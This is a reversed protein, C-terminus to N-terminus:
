TKLERKVEDLFRWDTGDTIIKQPSSKIMGAEHLRLAYFRITDEPDYERWKDYPVENLTELAYDYRATFGGDVMRQAVRKPESVCLDTARLIARLVRKTAIPHKHIYDANGALMCCFYQSWPGDIASNVIVHGIKRARLEQPDPPFALIADIKGEAFLEMPKATPSAVWNIDKVPDLGVYAAMASLFLYQSSGINQVGVSKGKLDVIRQIHETGFLEFCGPHVGALVTIPDGSDMPILLSAAFALSFDLEGRGFMKTQAVGAPSAVYRVDAFGEAHLLEDAVYQPAICIGPIKGLRVTTTEPPPEAALSKRAGVVGAAGVSLGALFRRRSQMIQM